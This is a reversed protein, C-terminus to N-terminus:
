LNLTGYRSEYERVRNTLLIMLRKAAYPTLVIRNSLQVVLEKTELANWTQNTGFLLAMEERTSLVNVVNAFTTAIQSDNWVVRPAGMNAVAETATEIAAKAEPTSPSDSM